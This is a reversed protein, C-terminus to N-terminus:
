SSINISPSPNLKIYSSFSISSEMTKLNKCSWPICLHPEPITLCWWLSTRERFSPCRVWRGVLGAEKPAEKTDRLFPTATSCRLLPHACLRPAWSTACSGSQQVPKYRIEGKYRHYVKVARPMNGVDVQATRGETAHFKSLVLPPTPFHSWIKMTTM